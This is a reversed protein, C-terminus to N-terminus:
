RWIQAFLLKGATEMKAPVTDQLIIILYSDSLLYLNVCVFCVTWVCLCSERLHDPLIIVSM